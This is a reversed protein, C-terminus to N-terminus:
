QAMDSIDFDNYHNFSYGDWVYILHPKASWHHIHVSLNPRFDEEKGVRAPLYSTPSAILNFNTLAPRRRM